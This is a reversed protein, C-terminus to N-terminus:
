PGLGDFLGAFDSIQPPYACAEIDQCSVDYQRKSMSSEWPIDGLKNQCYKITNMNPRVEQDYGFFEVILTKDKSNYIHGWYFDQNKRPPKSHPLGPSSDLGQTIYTSNDNITNSYTEWEFKVFEGSVYGLTYVQLILVSLNLLM